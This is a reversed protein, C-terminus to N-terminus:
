GLRFKFVTCPVQHGTVEIAEHQFEAVKKAAKIGVDKSAPPILSGELGSLAVAIQCGDHLSENRAAKPKWFSRNAIFPCPHGNGGAVYM